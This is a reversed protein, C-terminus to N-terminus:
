PADVKRRIKGLYEQYRPDATTSDVQQITSLADDYRGANYYTAALNILTEEFSPFLELAEHYYKIAQDYDDKRAYCAALNNLVHLHYPNARYADTLDILAEDFRGLSFNASGRYWALPTSTPDLPALPSSAQDIEEIVTTWNESLRAALANRTHIEANLRVAGVLLCCIFCLSMGVGISLMMRRSLAGQRPFTRSHIIMVIGLMLSSLLLHSIREKPFSFFSLALFAALGFVMLIALIVDDPEKGRRAVRVCCVLATTFIVLYCALAFVGSETLVWLYDNHPRQYFTVGPSAYLDETGYRPITLKWNGPGVGLLPQDAFMKLSKNWLMLRERTSPDSMQVMTQLRDAVSQQGSHRVLPSSFLAIVGALMVIVMGIAKWHATFKRRLSLPKWACILLVMVSLFAAGTMAVWAARTNSLAIVALSLIAAVAGILRWAKGGRWVAHLTFPFLLCLAAALQNKNAMTAYFTGNGPIGTFALGSYQGLAILSLGIAALAGLRSFLAVAFHNKYLAFVFVFFGGAWLCIKLFEFLAEALNAARTISLATFLLYGCFALVLVRRHLGAPLVRSFIWRRLVFVLSCLLLVAALAVFRPLLTADLTRSSYIFPLGVLAAGLLVAPLRVMIGGNPKQHRTM